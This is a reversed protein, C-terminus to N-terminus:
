RRWRRCRRGRRKRRGGDKLGKGGVEVLGEGDGVVGPLGEAEGGGVEMKGNMAKREIGHWIVVGEEGGGEGSGDVVGFAENNFPGTVEVRVALRTGDSLTGAGHHHLNGSLMTPPHSVWGEGQEVALVTNDFAGVGGGRECLAAVAPLKAM